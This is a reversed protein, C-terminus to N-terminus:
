KEVEDNTQNALQKTMSVRTGAGIKSYVRVKEMFCEMVTFSMGSREGTTDTTFLPVRAADIDEIGCGRDRIDIKISRDSYLAVQIYITGCINKYAHVICNTVAESVVCEIDCMENVTPNLQSCFAKITSRVVSENASISPLTLKMINIQTKKKANM